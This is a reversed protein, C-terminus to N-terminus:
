TTPVAALLRARNNSAHPTFPPTALPPALLDGLLSPMTLVLSILVEKPMFVFLVYNRTDPENSTNYNYNYMYIIIIECGDCQEKLRM